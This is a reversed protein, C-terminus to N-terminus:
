ALVNCARRQGSVGVVVPHQGLAQQGLAGHRQRQVLHAVAELREVQAIAVVGAQPVTLVQQHGTGDKGGQRLAHREAHHRTTRAILRFPEELTRADPIEHRAHHGLLIARVSSSGNRRM